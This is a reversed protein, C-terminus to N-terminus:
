CALYDAMADEMTTRQPASATTRHSHEGNITLLEHSCNMRVITLTSHAQTHSDSQRNADHSQQLAPTRCRARHQPRQRRTGLGLGDRARHGPRLALVGGIRGARAARRHRAADAPARSRLRGRLHDTTAAATAALTAAASGHHLTPMPHRHHAGRLAGRECRPVAQAGIPEGRKKRESSHRACANPHRASSTPSSPRHCAQRTPSRRRNRRGPWRPSTSAVDDNVVPTATAPRTTDPTDPATM